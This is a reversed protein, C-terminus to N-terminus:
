ARRAMRGLCVDGRPAAGQAPPSQWECSREDVNVPHHRRMIQQADAVEFEARPHVVLAHGGRRVGEAFFEPFGREDDDPFLTRFYQLNREYTSDGPTADALGHEERTTLEVRNTPFGAGVLETRVRDAVAYDDYLAVLVDPM